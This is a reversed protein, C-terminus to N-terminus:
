EVPVGLFRWFVIEAIIRTGYDRAKRAKSSLSEPDAVVLLDLKKSVRPQVILGRDTALSEALERTISEGDLRGTMAGTFCVTRGRLNALENSVSVATAGGGSEDMLEALVERSFGLLEAVDNLDRKESATIRSNEKAARVLGGLYSGHVRMVDDRELDWELALDLLGDAESGTIRRDELVRDLLQFYPLTNEDVDGDELKLHELIRALRGREHAARAAAASRCLSKGSPILQPWKTAKRPLYCGLEELTHLSEERATALYCALLQATAKADDLASHSNEIEIGFHQCCRELRYSSLPLGFASALGATCVFPVDPLDEGMRELEADLFRLDFDANHAVVVRGHLLSILDGAIDNFSPADILDQGRIGHIETPGLDRGPNVLTTWEDQVHGQGDIAVVAVEIIRHHHRPSYGTTETDIVAFSAQDLKMM